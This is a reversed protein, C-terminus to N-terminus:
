GELSFDSHVHFEWPELVPEWGCKLTNYVNTLLKAQLKAQLSGLSSERLGADIGLVAAELLPIEDPQQGTTLLLALSDISASCGAQLHGRLMAGIQLGM